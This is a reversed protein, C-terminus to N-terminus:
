AKAWRLIRRTNVRNFIHCGLILQGREFRVTVTLSDSGNFKNRTRILVFGAGHEQASYIAKQIRLRTAYHSRDYARDKALSFNNFNRDTLETIM